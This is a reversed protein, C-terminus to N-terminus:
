LAIAKGTAQWNKNEDFYFHIEGLYLGGWAVQNILTNKGLKNKLTIPKKLLTHTYGGIILDIYKTEQALITDSLQANRHQYGLHSLCIILDCQEEIKLITSIHKATKLPNKCSLEATELTTNGIGFIGIRIGPKQYIKYPKLKKQLTKNIITYNSQVVNFKADELQKNLIDLGIDFDQNGLTVADYALANMSSIITKNAKQYFPKAQFFGGADLLLLNTNQKRANTIYEMRKSLGGRNAFNPHSSAFADLHGHIDNTHLITIQTRKKDLLPPIGSIGILSTAQMSKKIFDRRSTM